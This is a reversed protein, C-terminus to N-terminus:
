LPTLNPHIPIQLDLGLWAQPGPRHVLGLISSLGEAESKSPFFNKGPGIFIMKEIVFHVVWHNLGCNPCQKLWFHPM